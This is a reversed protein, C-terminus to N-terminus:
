YSKIETWEGYLDYDGAGTILIDYFEGAKINEHESVYIETDVEPSDYQSRMVWYNEEKHDAIAKIIKGQKKRNMKRSIEQQIEMLEELRQQRIIEPVAGPLLAAPTGPEPSFAFVGLREFNYAQVFSKLEDFDEKTEGPYGTIITTRVAIDPINERFDDLLKCIMKKTHGRKMSALVSDSVHQLPIDLYHCLKQSSKMVDLVDYLTKDPYTYQLRIWRIGEVIELAKILDALRNKGYIDVGYRTTDQAIIILEKVGAKALVEAERVLSELPRSTNAGRIAPITCFSCKRDCGEAIKLYAYHAPTTLMRQAQARWNCKAGLDALLRETENVGYFKDVEPIEQQLQAKFREGLCGMVVVKEVRKHAKENTIELIQRINEAISEEIFGCTNIVAVDAKEVAKQHVVDFGAEKMRGMLIESDVLNKSCGMTTVHVCLPKREM